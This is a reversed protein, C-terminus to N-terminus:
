SGRKRGASAVYFQEDWASLSPADPTESDSVREVPKFIQAPSCGTAFFNFYADGGDRAAKMLSPDHGFKRWFTSPSVGLLQCVHEVPQTSEHARAHYFCIQLMWGKMGFRSTTILKRAMAAAEPEFREKNEDCREFDLRDPSEDFTEPDFHLLAYRYRNLWQQHYAARL